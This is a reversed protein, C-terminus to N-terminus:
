SQRVRSVFLNGSLPVFVTLDVVAHARSSRNQRMVVRSGGDRLTGATRRAFLSSNTRAFSRAVTAIQVDARVHNIMSALTAVYAQAEDSLPRCMVLQTWTVCKHAALLGPAGHRDHLERICAAGALINGRAGNPDVRSAPSRLETRTKPMIQMLRMTGKKISSVTRRQM